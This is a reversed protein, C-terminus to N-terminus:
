PRESKDVLMRFSFCTGTEIRLRHRTSPLLATIEDRTLFQSHLGVIREVTQVLRIFCHDIDQEEILLRGGPKLVRWMERMIQRPQFFHHLADVVLVADVSDPPLPLRAADAQIPILGKKCRAQKLMSPNIDCVIVTAGLGTFHHSVRGTGGGLDLLNHNPKLNLLKKLRNARPPRILHDYIPALCHFLWDSQNYITKM